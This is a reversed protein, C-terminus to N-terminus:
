NDNELEREIEESHNTLDFPELFEKMLEDISKGNIGSEAVICSNEQLYRHWGYLFDEADEYDDFVLM